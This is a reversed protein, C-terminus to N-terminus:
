KKGEQSRRAILRGFRYVGAFDGLQGLAAVAAPWSWRRLRRGTLDIILYM